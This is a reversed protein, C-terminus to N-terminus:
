EQRFSVLCSAAGDTGLPELVIGLLDVPETWSFVKATFLVRLDPDLALAGRRSDLEPGFHYSWRFAGNSAHSAIMVSEQEPVPDLGGGFDASGQMTALTYLNGDRGVIADDFLFFDSSEVVMRSWRHYGDRDLSMIFGAKRGEEVLREGGFDISGEFEGAVYTEGDPGAAINDSRLMADRYYVNAWRYTGTPLYRAVFIGPRTVEIEGGGFDAPGTGIDTTVYANGDSTVALRGTGGNVGGLNRAYRLAGGEAYSALFIKPAGPDLRTGGFDTPGGILGVVYLNRAADVAGDTVLDRLPSSLTRLWAFVGLTDYKLVLGDSEGGTAPIFAGTGELRVEERHSGLFFVNGAADCALNGISPGNIMRTWRLDGSKDFSALVGPITGTGFIPGGGLDTPEAADVLFGYLYV